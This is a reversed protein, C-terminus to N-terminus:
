LLLFLGVEALDLCLKLLSTRCLHFGIAVAAQFVDLM